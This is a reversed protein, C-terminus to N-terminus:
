SCVTTYPESYCREGITSENIMCLDRVYVIYSVVFGILCFLLMISTFRAFRPGFLVEAIDEYRNRKTHNSAHVILMGTYYSIAAGLLILITGFAIGNEKVAYPFTLTGAGLTVAILSFM